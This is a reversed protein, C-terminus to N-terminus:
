LEMFMDYCVLDTGRINLTREKECSFGMKEYFPKATKTGTIIIKKCGGVRLFELSQEFVKRGYGQGAIEKTFYLGRIEGLGDPHICAHCFGEIRRDKELVLHYEDNVSREWIDQNYNVSSWCKIQEDNYDKSCLEVISRRHADMVAKMDERVSRRITIANM